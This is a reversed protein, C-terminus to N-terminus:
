RARTYRLFGAYRQAGTDQPRGRGRHLDFKMRLFQCIRDLGGLGGVAGYRPLKASKPNQRGEFPAKCTRWDEFRWVMM